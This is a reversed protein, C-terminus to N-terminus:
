FISSRSPTILSWEPNISQNFHISSKAPGSKHFLISNFYSYQKIYNSHILSYILNIKLGILSKILLKIFNYYIHRIIPNNFFTNGDSHHKSTRKTKIYFRLVKWPFYYNPLKGTERVCRWATPWNWEAYKILKRKYWKVRHWPRLFTYPGCIQFHVCSSPRGLGTTLLTCPDGRFIVCSLVHVICLSICVDM